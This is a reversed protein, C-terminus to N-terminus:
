RDHDLSFVDIHDYPTNESLPFDVYLFRDHPSFAFRLPNSIETDTKEHYQFVQKGTQADLVVVRAIKAGWIPELHLGQPVHTSADAAILKGDQSIAFSSHVGCPGAALTQVLKGSAVSFARVAGKVGCIDAYQFDNIVYVRTGDRSFAIKSQYSGSPFDELAKGSRADLIWIDQQDSRGYPLFPIKLSLRKRASAWQENYLIALKSGDPSWALDQIPRPLEWRGQLKQLDPDYVYLVTPDMNFVVAISGDKPSVAMRAWPPDTAWERTPIDHWDPHLYQDSPLVRRIESAKPEDTNYLLLWPPELGVLHRGGNQFRWAPQMKWTEDQVPYGAPDLQSVAKRSRPDYLSMEYFASPPGAGVHVSRSSILLLGQSSVALLNAGGRPVDHAPIVYVKRSSFVRWATVLALLSLGCLLVPRGLRSRGRSGMKTSVIRLRDGLVSRAPPASKANQAFDAIERLSLSKSRKMGGSGEHDRLQLSV